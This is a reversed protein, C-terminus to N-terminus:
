SKEGTSVYEVETAVHNADFSVILTKSYQTMNFVTGKVHSYAYVIGTEGKNKVLPYVVNGIPQGLLAVVDARTSKGKTIASLKSEDFDTADDAFSSVFELGVLVDNVTYFVMARAPTVGPYRGTGAGEAYAYRLIRVKENNKLLEGTQGPAGMVNVVDSSNSKGVILAQPDPRKFNTGACASVLVALIVVILFQANKM